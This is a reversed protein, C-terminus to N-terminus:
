ISFRKARASFKGNIMEVAQRFIGAVVGVLCIEIPQLQRVFICDRLFIEILEAVQGRVDDLSSATPAGHGKFFIGEADQM